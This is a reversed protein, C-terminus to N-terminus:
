SALLSLLAAAAASLHREPHRVTGLSRTLSVGPLRLECLRSGALMAPPLATWGLGVEALMKLTDLNNSHQRVTMGAERGGVAGAVIAHTQTDPEPLLAPVDRLQTATVEPHQALPHDEAVAIVMPDAWVGQQDLGAIPPDPLTVIALEVQGRAVAHCADESGLFHIDLDVGPFTKVYQRLVPPMRHMAVHHSLALALHGIVRDSLEDLARRGDELAALLRRAHPLFQRGADTLIVRRGVRDFLAFGLRAEANALRKSVAPQSVHLRQAAARFSGTDCITVFAEIAALQMPRLSHSIAAHYM